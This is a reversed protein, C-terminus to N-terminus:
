HRFHRRGTFVMALGAEDCAKISDADRVSGGPQIIASIGAAAAAKVADDFPFFADSALVAGQTNGGEVAIKVAGVRNPQGTGIGLTAGDKAVAIGNSKVHKVVKWAFALDASQEPTPKTQTPITWDSESTYSRDVEQLCIGGDVPLAEWIDCSPRKITLVRLNKKKVFVELADETYGPAAIVELFLESLSEATSDDVDRNFTVIGGFISVPDADRAKTWAELVTKGLAAGCPAAHKVGICALDDFESVARWAGDLDRLNNFSLEKGQHQIFDSLAGFSASSSPVYWAAKQHPNEGYRLDSSKRYSGSLWEGAEDVGLLSKAVASDYAGTLAFVKGALRRRTADGLGGAKEWEDQIAKYDSPDCVVAVHAHNKAASRIMTPGGIDIFEVLENLPIGSGSKEFFPYLNVVVVDIPDIGKQRMTNLHAPDDRRALLGGHIKPHLTKVRGDLIEEDGTYAAVETVDLGAATLVKYTGGTSLLSFGKNLLFRAFDVIDTKDYVSILARKTM